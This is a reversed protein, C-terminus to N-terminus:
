FSLFLGGSNRWTERVFTDVYPYCLAIDRSLRSQNARELIEVDAM